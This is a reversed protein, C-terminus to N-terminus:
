YGLIIYTCSNKLNYFKGKFFNNLASFKNEFHLFGTLHIKRNNQKHSTLKLMPERYPNIFYRLDISFPEINMRKNTKSHLNRM